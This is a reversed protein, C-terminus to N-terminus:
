NKWCLLLLIYIAGGGLQKMHMYSYLVWQSYLYIANNYDFVKKFQPHYYL